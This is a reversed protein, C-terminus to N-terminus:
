EHHTRADRFIMPLIWQISLALSLLNMRAQWSSSVPPKASLGPSTTLSLVEIKYFRCITPLSSSGWTKPKAEYKGDGDPLHIREVSQKSDCTQGQQAVFLDFRHIRHEAHRFVNQLPDAQLGVEETLGESAGRVDCVGGRLRPSPVPVVVRRRAEPPSVCLSSRDTWCM